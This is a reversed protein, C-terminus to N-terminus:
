QFLREHLLPQLLEGVGLLRQEFEDGLLARGERRRGLELCPRAGAAQVAMANGPRWRSVPAAM